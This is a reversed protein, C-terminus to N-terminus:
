PITKLYLYDYSRYAINISEWWLAYSVAWYIMSSLLNNANEDSFSEILDIIKRLLISDIAPIMGLLICIVTLLTMKVKDFKLFYIGLSFTSKSLTPYKIM